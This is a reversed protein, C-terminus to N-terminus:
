RVCGFTKRHMGKYGVYRMQLLGCMQMDWQQGDEGSGSMADLGLGTCGGVAYGHCQRLDHVSCM